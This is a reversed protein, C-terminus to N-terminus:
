LLHIPLSSALWLMYVLFRRGGLNLLDISGITFHRRALHRQNVDSRSPACIQQMVHNSAGLLITAFINILLHIWTDTARVKNCDGNYVAVLGDGIGYRVAAWLSVVLNILFIILTVFICFLFTVQGRPRKFYSALRHQQRQKSSGTMSRSVNDIEGANVHDIGTFEENQTLLPTSVSRERDQPRQSWDISQSTAHIRGNSSPPIPKRPIPLRRLETDHSELNKPQQIM